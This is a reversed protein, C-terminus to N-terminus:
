LTLVGRLILRDQSANKTERDQGYAMGAFSPFRNIIWLEKPLEQTIAFGQFYGNREALHASRSIVRGLEFRTTLSLKRARFNEGFIATKRHRRSIARLSSAVNHIHAL